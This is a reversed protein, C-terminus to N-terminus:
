KLIIAELGPRKRLPSSIGLKGGVIFDMNVEGRAAAEAGVSSLL